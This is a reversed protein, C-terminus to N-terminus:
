LASDMNKDAARRGPNHLRHRHRRDLVPAPKPPIQICHNIDFSGRRCNLEILMWVGLALFIIIALAVILMELIDM